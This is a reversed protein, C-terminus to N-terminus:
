VTTTAFARTGESCSGGSLAPGTKTEDKMDKM